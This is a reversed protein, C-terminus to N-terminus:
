AGKKQEDLERLEGLLAATLRGDAAASLEEGPLCGGAVWAAVDAARWRARDGGIFVPPPIEGFVAADYCTHWDLDLQKALSFISHLM